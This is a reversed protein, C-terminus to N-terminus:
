FGGRLLLHALRRCFGAGLTQIVMPIRGKLGVNKPCFYFRLPGM